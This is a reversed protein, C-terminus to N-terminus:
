AIKRESLRVNEYGRRKAKLEWGFPINDGRVIFSTETREAVYIHGNGYPTLIVQYPVDTNICEAFILEIPVICLGNEIVSEGLDGLYYEATEYASIARDGYHKTHQLCNKTGYVDFNGYVIASSCNVAGVDVGMGSAYIYGGAVLVYDSSTGIRAGANGYVSVYRGTSEQLGTIIGATGSTTSFTIIGAGLTVTVGGSTSSVTSGTITGGTITPSTISVGSSLAGSFSANGSADINFQKSKIVGDNLQIKM